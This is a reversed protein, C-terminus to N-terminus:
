YIIAHVAGLWANYTCHVSSCRYNDIQCLCNIIRIVYSNVCNLIRNTIVLYFYITLVCLNPVAVTIRRTSITVIILRIRTIVCACCDAKGHSPGSNGQLVSRCWHRDTWVTRCQNWHTKCVNGCFLRVSVEASTGFCKPVLASIDQSRLTRPVGFHRSVM